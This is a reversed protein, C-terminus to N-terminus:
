IAAKIKLVETTDETVRVRNDPRYGVVWIIKENDHLIWVAKKENLSLKEDKFFKSLKKKGKMGFPYFFDGEKWRSLKLPFVIKDKDVFITWKDTVEVAKVEEVVITIPHSIGKESLVYVEAEYPKRESLILEDRNKLLQHTRSYVIKGTQTDILNKVDNWETFQYESLLEYMLERYNPLAKLTPIHLHLATGKRTFVKQVVHQLYDNLLMEAAQLNKRTTQFNQLFEPTVKKLAPIVTHRLNNRMYDTNKNTSDERWIVNNKVAYEHIEARSFDLLPRLIKQNQMPIGTLGRLGTGRSLNIMFTEIDDDLHHATLLYDYQFDNLLKEFWRYRLERAALQISIKHTEAYAHTDFRKTHVKLQKDEGYKNVFVEDGDSESGRLSFNCHALAVGYHLKILLDALVMSDLGGSCAIVIKKDKLFPFNKHLHNEFKKVM